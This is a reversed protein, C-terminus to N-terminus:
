QSVLGSFYGGSGGDAVGVGTGLWLIQRQVLIVWEMLVIPIGGSTGGM